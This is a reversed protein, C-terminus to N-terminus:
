PQEAKLRAFLKGGAAKSVPITAEVGLTGSGSVDFVVDNVTNNVDPVVVAEWPDAIGLDSSHEISLTATGRSATDRMTFNKLV